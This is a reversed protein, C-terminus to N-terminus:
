DFELFEPAAECVADIASFVRGRPKDLQHGLAKIAEAILCYEMTSPHPQVFAGLNEHCVKPCAEVTFVEALKM